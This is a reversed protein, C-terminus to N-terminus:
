RCLEDSILEEVLSDDKISDIRGFTGSRRFFRPRIISTKEDLAETYVDTHGVIRGPACLLCLRPHYALSEYAILLKSPM